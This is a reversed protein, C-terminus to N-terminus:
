QTQAWAPSQGFPISWAPTQGFQNSWAPSAPAGCDAGGPSCGGPQGGWGNQQQWAYPSYPPIVGFSSPASPAQGYYFGQQRQCFYGCFAFSPMAPALMAAALMVIAAIKIPKAKVEKGQM